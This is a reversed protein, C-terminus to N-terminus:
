EHAASIVALRSSIKAVARDYATISGMGTGFESLALV